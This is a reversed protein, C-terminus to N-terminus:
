LERYSPIRAWRVQRAYRKTLLGKKELMQLVMWTQSREGSIDNISLVLGRDRLEDLIETPTENPDRIVMDRVILRAPSLLRAM